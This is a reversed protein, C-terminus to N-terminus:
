RAGSWVLCVSLRLSPRLAVCGEKPKLSGDWKKPERGPAFILHRDEEHERVAKRSGTFGCGPQACSVTQPPPPPPAKKPARSAQQTSPQPRPSPQSQRPPQPQPPRDRHPRASSSSSSATGPLPGSYTSSLTYGDATTQPPAPSAGTGPYQWATPAPQTHPHPYPHHAHAPPYHPAPPYASLAPQQQQQQPPYAYHSPQAYAYPATGPAGQHLPYGAQPQGLQHSPGLGYGGTSPPQPPYPYGQATHHYGM